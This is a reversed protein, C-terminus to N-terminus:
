QMNKRYKFFERQESEKIFSPLEYNCNNRFNPNAIGLDHFLVNM